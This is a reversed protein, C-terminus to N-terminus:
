NLSPDEPYDAMRKYKSGLAKLIRKWLTDPYDFFTFKKSPPAVIWSNRDLEENLQNPAWGSYGIFFRIDGEEITHDAILNRLKEFDGGWFLGPRVEVADERLAEIRHIFHLSDQQVPGGIYVPVDFEPFDEIIENLRLDVQNNLVFGVTGDEGHETLLVVSRKFNPDMLFPESILFRGKEPNHDSLAM